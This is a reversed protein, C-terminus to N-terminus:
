GGIAPFFTLTPANNSSTRTLVDGSIVPFLTSTANYNNSFAGGLAISVSGILGGFVDQSTDCQILIFGNSPATYQNNGDFTISVGASWNPQGNAVLGSKVTANSLHNNVWATTAINNSNDTASSPTTATAGSGLSVAGTFSTSGTFTNNGNKIAVDNYDAAHFATKPTFSTIRYPSSSERTLSGICCVNEKQGSSNLIVNNIEDYTRYDSSFVTSGSLYISAKDQQGSQTHVGVSTRTFAINNLTGDANRGNPILGKVDPLAFVTSGIYGFGNFVQDIATVGTGNVYSVIGLPFTLRTGTDTGNNYIKILNTSTDYWACYGSSPPTSGSSVNQPLFFAITSDTSSRFLVYKSTGFNSGSYSLDGTTTLSSFTGSGNPYYIKSGDELTLTNSSLTLKIDQQIEIICNTRLTDTLDHVMATTAINNSSNSYSPTPAYTSFNGSSDCQILIQATQTSGSVPSKVWLAAKSTNSTDISGYCSAMELGNSDYCDVGGFINNSPAIGQTYNSWKSIYRDDNSSTDTIPKVKFEVSNGFTASGSFSTSGSFTKSGSITQTNNTYVGNTVTSANGTLTAKITSPLKLTVAGSGDVSVSSGTNTADSDSISVNRATGWKLTTINGSGNFNTGNITRSTQLVTATGANGTISGSITSSFTKTGGITQNGTTYVGNTVTGANGSISGTITSSFTKDGTITETGAKHVCLADKGDLTQKNVADTVDIPDSVNIVRYNNANFAQQPKVQMDKTLCNEFSQAIDALLIGDFRSALIKINADRDAVASFNSTWNGNGDFPM